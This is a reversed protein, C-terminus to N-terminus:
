EENAATTPAADHTPSQEAPVASPPMAKYGLV